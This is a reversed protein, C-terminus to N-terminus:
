RVDVFDGVGTSDFHTADGLYQILWTGDVGAKGRLSTRGHAGSTGKTVLKWKTTGRARFWLQVPKGAMAKWKTGSREALVGTVTVTAGKRVPEPAANVSTVRTATRSMRFVQSSSEAYEDTTPHYVRYYGSTGGSGRVTFSENLWHNMGTLAAQGVGLVKWGTRGDASREVRVKEHGYEPGTTQYTARFLGSVTVQGNAALTARLAQVTSERPMVLPGEASGALFGNEPAIRWNDVRLGPLAPLRVTFRGGADTVIRQSYASGSGRGITARLALGAAPATGDLVQGTVTAQQGPLVRTRDATATITVPHSRYDWVRSETTSTGHVQAGNETFTARFTGAPGDLPYEGATFQGSDSTVATRGAADEQDTRRVEVTRGPLAVEDGSGPQVGVLRGQPRATPDDLGPTGVAFSLVPRLTFDLTGADRRTLTNGKSDTATVDIAYAGLEPLPGGDETLKLPAGDPLGFRGRDWPSETLAPLEAVVADGRRLRASVETLVAGDADTWAAVAFSGRQSPHTLAAGIGVTAPEAALATPAAAFTLAGAALSLALASAVLPIGRDARM